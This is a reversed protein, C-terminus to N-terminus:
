RRWFGRNRICRGHCRNNLVALLMPLNVGAVGAVDQKGLLKTVINCPTAGYIDSLILVGDGTNLTDLMQQASPLQKEPDQNHAVDFHALQGLSKGFVHEACGILSNGLQGHAIILVGIM